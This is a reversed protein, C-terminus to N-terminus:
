RAPRDPAALAGALQTRSTISLKRYANRLHAEVTKETVFMQQAIRRNSLGAAAQQSTAREAPTLADTGVRRTLHPKVGAATLDAAIRLELRRAACQGATRYAQTLHARADRLQGDRLHQRGLDALTWALELPAPANQLTTASETLLDVRRTGTALLGLARTAVGAARATGARVALALEEEVLEIEAAGASGQRALFRCLALQSRWPSVVGSWGLDLNVQGYTGFATAAATYQGRAALLEARSYSLLRFAISDSDIDDTLMSLQPATDQEAAVTVITAAARPLLTRGTRADSALDLARQAESAAATLDGRRLYLSSRQALMDAHRDALSAVGTRELLADFITAAQELQDTVLAALGVLSLINGQLAPSENALGDLASSSHDQVVVLPQSDLAADLATTAEVIRSRGAPRGHDVHLADRRWDTLRQRASISVSACAFLEADIVASFAGAGRESRDRLELLMDTAALAHGSFRQVRSLEVHTRVQLELDDTAALAQRLVEAAALLDLSALATGLELLMPALETSCAADARVESIARQLYDVAVAPSGMAAARLAAARLLPVAWGVPSTAKVVHAAILDPAAHNDYLSRAVVAHRAALTAASHQSYVATRILPHLFQVPDLHQVVGAAALETVASDLQEASCGTVRALDAASATDMVALWHATEAAAPSIGSLRVLVSMTVAAPSLAAVRDIHEHDPRISEAIMQRLLEHLLFPTGGTVALVQQTFEPIPDASLASALWATIAQLGLGPLDHVVTNPALSMAQIQTSGPRTAVIVAVAVAELRGQLFNLFRLSAQDAWQADDIFLVVPARDAREVLDWYLQQLVAYMQGPDASPAVTRASTFLQHVLGFAFQQELAAGRASLVSFGASEADRRAEALVTTKGMGAAGQIILVGGAGQRAREFLESVLTMAADREYVPAAM